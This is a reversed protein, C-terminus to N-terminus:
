DQKKTKKRRKFENSKRRLEALEKNLERRNSDIRESEDEKYTFNFLDNLNPQHIEAKTPSNVVVATIFALLTAFFAFVEDFNLSKVFSAIKISINSAQRIFEFLTIEGEAAKIIVDNFQIREDITLSNYLPTFDYTGNEYTKYTGPKFIFEYRCKWCFINFGNQFQIHQNPGIRLLNNNNTGCKPCLVDIDM